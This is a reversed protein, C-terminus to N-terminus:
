KTYYVIKTDRSNVSNQVTMIDASAVTKAQLQTYDGTGLKTFETHLLLEAAEIDLQGTNGNLYPESKVIQEYDAQELKDYLTDNCLLITYSVAYGQEAKVQRIAQNLTEALQPLMAYDSAHLFLLIGSVHDPNYRTFYAGDYHATALNICADFATRRKLMESHSRSNESTASLKKFLGKYDFEQVFVFQYTNDFCLYTECPSNLLMDGESTHSLIEFDSYTENLYTEPYSQNWAKVYLRTAVLAAIAGLVILIIYKKM